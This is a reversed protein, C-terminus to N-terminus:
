IDVSVRTSPPSGIHRNRNNTASAAARRRHTESKATPRRGWEELMKNRVSQAARTEGLMLALDEGSLGDLLDPRFTTALAVIRRVWNGPHLPGRFVWELLAMGARLDDESHSLGSDAMAAQLLEVEDPYLDEGARARALIDQVERAMIEDSPDQGTEYGEWAGTGDDARRYHAQLVRHCRVELPAQEIDTLFAAM